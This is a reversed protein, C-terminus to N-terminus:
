RAGEHWRLVRVGRLTVWRSPRGVGEDLVVPHTGPYVADLPWRGDDGCRSRVMAVAEDMRADPAVGVARVYDLGRLVDYRWWTPHAFHGWAPAPRPDGRVFKRDADIREGSGLRRCLHRERLYAEGRRRAATLLASDGTARAHELLAELVCITTNFSSRTAGNEAECNWGGDALQEGLLRTVVGHVDAGFYAGALVVQANICPEEEGEFFRHGACSPPGCGAWTVNGAVRAIAAKAQASAPDLGFERLLLLAHMTADYGPNWAAGGWTGDQAQAALLGAGLGESAVRAREAAVVDDPAGVIDRLVQWRIAPDGALLWDIVPPPTAQSASTSNVATGEAVFGAISGDGARAILHVRLGKRV